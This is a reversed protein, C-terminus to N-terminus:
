LARKHPTHLSRTFSIEAAPRVPACANRPAESLPLTPELVREERGQKGATKKLHQGPVLSGHRQVSGGLGAPKKINRTM